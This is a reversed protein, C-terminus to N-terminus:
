RENEKTAQCEGYLRAPAKQAYDEGPLLTTEGRSQSRDKESQLQHCLRLLLTTDNTINLADPEHISSLM